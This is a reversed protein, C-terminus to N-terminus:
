VNQYCLRDMKVTGIEPSYTCEADKGKEPSRHRSDQSAVQDKSTKKSLKYPIPETKQCATRLSNLNRMRIITNAAGCFQISEDLSFDLEVETGFVDM